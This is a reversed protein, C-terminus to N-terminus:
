LELSSWPVVLTHTGSSTFNTNCMDGFPGLLLITYVKAAWIAALYSCFQYKSGKPDYALIYLIATTFVAARNM